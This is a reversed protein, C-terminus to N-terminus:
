LSAERNERRRRLVAAILEARRRPYYVSKWYQSMRASHCNKCFYSLDDPRTPDRYFCVPPLEQGCGRCTKLNSKATM